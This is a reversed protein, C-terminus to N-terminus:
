CLGTLNIRDNLLLQCAPASLCAEFRFDRDTSDRYGVDEEVSWFVSSTLEVLYLYVLHGLWVASVISVLSSKKRYKFYHVDTGCLTLRFSRGRKTM